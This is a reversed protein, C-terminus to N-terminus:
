DSARNEEKRSPMALLSARCESAADTGVAEALQRQAGSASVLISFALLM